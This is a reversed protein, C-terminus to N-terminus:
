PRAAERRARLGGALYDVGTVVTLIVALWMVVTALDAVWGPLHGLPLLWLGIAVSQVVTKLKGGRSAPVVESRLLAMRWVTIGVERLLIVVTVWWPVRGQLSLMVLATGVLLKDAVPDLVVGLSTVEGRTRALHGDLRDSLAALVFLGTALLRWGLADEAAQALAWGFVPVLVIRVVTVLNAPTWRAAAM